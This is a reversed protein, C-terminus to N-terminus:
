AKLKEAMSVVQQALVALQKQTPEDCLKGAADLKEGARAVSVQQPAVVCMLNQMLMRLVMLVRMGGLAGGSAAMLGVVKDKYAALVAEDGVKRSAWDIANKLVAPYSSNYEPSAILFADHEILLQKFAQAREPVGYDDEEDQNYIPMAYDALNIVTVEAGANRAAQAACEVIAQNLSGRRTSGSFALVKVM